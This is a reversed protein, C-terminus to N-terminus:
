ALRGVLEAALALQGANAAREMDILKAMNVSRVLVFIKVGVAGGRSKSAGYVSKRPSLRGNARMSVNDAVLWGGVKSKFPVFRLKIRNKQEWDRPGMAKGGRGASRGGRGRVKGAGPLPIALFKRGGTARIVTGRDFADHVQPAKSWVHAAAHVSEQGDLPYIQLRWANALGQGLAPATQSRLISQTVRGAARVSLTAAKKIAATEAEMAEVLNGTHRVTIM